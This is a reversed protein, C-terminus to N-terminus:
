GLIIKFLGEPCPPDGKETEKMERGPIPETAVLFIFCASAKEEM